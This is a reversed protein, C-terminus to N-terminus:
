SYGALEKRIAVINQFAFIECWVANYPGVPVLGDPLMRYLEYDPLLGILDRFFFRSVVNMENFELHIVNIKGTSIAQHAGLLVEREHGETDIKLLALKDINWQAMFDDVTTMEVITTSSRSSRIEEIVERYLSAHSSGDAEEYDFLELKGPKDSMGKNIATVKDSMHTELSSFSGPNPEFSFLRAHPINRAVLQSYKGVNAGVDFVVPADVTILQPMIKELFHNEGSLNRDEWNLVGLGRLAIAYLLRNVPYLAKRAMIRQAIRIILKM